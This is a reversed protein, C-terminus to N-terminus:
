YAAKVFPTTKFVGNEGSARLYYFGKSLASIDITFHTSVEKLFVINSTILRGGVDLIQYTIYESDMTTKVNLYNLAPSPFLSLFASNEENLNNELGWVDIVDYFHRTCYEGIKTLEILYSGNHSYSHMTNFNTDLPSGDGFDWLVSLTNTTDAWFVFLPIVGSVSFSSSPYPLFSTLISDSPPSLCGNMLCRVFYSDPESVAISQTVAGTSWVNNQSNGSTLVVSQGPCFSTSGNVSITPSPPIPMFEVNLPDSTLITGNINISVFYTDSSFVTISQTTDGTSWLNGYEYNSSLILSDGDCLVNNDSASISIPVIISNLQHFKDMDFFLAANNGHDGADAIAFTVFYTQGSFVPIGVTIPITYGLFIINGQSQGSNNVFFPANCPCNGCSSNTITTTNILMDTGPVRAINTDQYVGGAPNLGSVYIGMPDLFNTCSFTPYENSAYVFSFFLSDQQPTFSFTLVSANHTTTVFNIDQELILYGPTGAGSLFSPPTLSNANSINGTSLVIGNNIGITSPSGTFAGFQHNAGQSSIFNGYSSDALYPTLISQPAGSSIVLQGQIFLAVFQLTSILFLTKM